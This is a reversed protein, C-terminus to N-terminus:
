KKISFILANAPKRLSVIYEKILAKSKIVRSNNISFLGMTDVRKEIRLFPSVVFSYPRSFFDYVLIKTNAPCQLCAQLICAIKFRGGVFVLDYNPNNKFASSHYSPWKKISSKDMPYGWKNILGVDILLPNIRESDVNGRVAPNPLISDCWFGADLEVVTIQNINPSNAALVTSNGAGFELYCESHSMSERLLYFEGRTMKM